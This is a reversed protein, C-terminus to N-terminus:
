GTPTSWYSVAGLQIPLEVAAAIAVYEGSVARLANARGDSALGAVDLVPDLVLVTELRLRTGNAGDTLLVDGSEIMETYTRVRADHGAVSRIVM